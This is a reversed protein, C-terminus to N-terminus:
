NNTFIAEHLLTEATSKSTKASGLSLLAMTEGDGMAAPEPVPKRQFPPRRMSFQHCLFHHRILEWLPPDVANAM